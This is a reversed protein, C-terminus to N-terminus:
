GFHASSKPPTTPWDEGACIVYHKYLAVVLAEYWTEAWATLTKGENAGAGDRGTISCTTAGRDPQGAFAVRYGSDLLRSLSDGVHGADPFARALDDETVGELSVTVFTTWQAGGKVSSQSQKREGRAMTRGGIRNLVRIMLISFSHEYVMRYHRMASAPDDLWYGYLQASLAQCQENFDVAHTRAM